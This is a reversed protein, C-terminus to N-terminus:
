ICGLVLNAAKGAAGRLIGKLTLVDEIKSDARQGQQRQYGTALMDLDVIEQM